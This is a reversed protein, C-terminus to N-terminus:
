GRPTDRSGGGLSGSGPTLPTAPVGVGAWGAYLTLDGTVPTAPDFQETADPTTYWGTFTHGPREPPTPLTVTEGHWPTAPPIDTDTGTRFGVTFYTTLAYGKWTPATYSGEGDGVYRNPVAITLGSATGLSPLTAESGSITEPAPGAFQVRTLHNNNRFVGSGIRRLTAPLEVSTLANVGFAEEGLDTLAAPLDVSELRNDFFAKYDVTTLTDPLDVSTLRNSSFAHKGLSTLAGPLTLSEIANQTFALDGITTVTDPLDVATLTNRAFALGEITTLSDPFLVESLSNELFAGSSITTLTRPLEISTLGAGSFANTGIRTVAYEVGDIAVTDPLTLDTGHNRDYETATAGADRNHPDAVYTVGDLTTVTTVARAPGAHLVALMFAALLAVLMPVLRRTASAAPSLAFPM